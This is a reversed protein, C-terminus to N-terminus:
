SSVQYPLDMKNVMFHKYASTLDKKTVLAGRGVRWLALVFKRTSTMETKFDEKMITSNLSGPLDPNWLWGPVTTDRDRPASADVLPRVKGDWRVKMGLPNVKFETWPLEEQRLPGFAIPPDELIWSQIADAMQEGVPAVKSSNQVDTPLTARGSAGTRFGYELGLCVRDLMEQDQYGARRALDRLKDPDVWSRVQDWHRFTKKTWTAWYTEPFMEAGYDALVPLNNKSRFVKGGPYPPIPMMEAEKWRRRDVLLHDRTSTMMGSSVFFLSVEM